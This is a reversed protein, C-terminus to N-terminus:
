TRRREAVKLLHRATEVLKRANVPSTELLEAISSYGLGRSRHLVAARQRATLADLQQTTAALSEKALMCEELDAGRAPLSALLDSQESPRELKWRRAHRRRDRGLNNIVTVWFSLPSLLECSRKESLEMVRLCADSLLDDAESPNGNTWRLCLRRLTSHSSLWPRAADDTPQRVLEPPGRRGRLPARTAPGAPDGPSNGNM